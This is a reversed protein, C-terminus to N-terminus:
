KPMTESCVELILHPLLARRIIDDVHETPHERLYRVVDRIQVGWPLRPRPLGPAITDNDYLVELDVDTGVSVTETLLPNVQTGVSVSSLFV